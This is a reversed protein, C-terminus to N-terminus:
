AESVRGFWCTEIGHEDAVANVARALDSNPDDLSKM